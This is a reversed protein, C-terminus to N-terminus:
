KLAVTKNSVGSCALCTGVEPGKCISKGGRSHENGLYVDAHNVWVDKLDKSM